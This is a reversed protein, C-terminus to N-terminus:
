KKAADVAQVMEKGFFQSRVGRRRGNEDHADFDVVTGDLFRRRIRGLVVEVVAAENGGRCFTNKLVEKLILLELFLVELWFLM